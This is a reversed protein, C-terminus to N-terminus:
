INKRKVEAINLRRLDLAMESSIWIFAGLPLAVTDLVFKDFSDDTSEL